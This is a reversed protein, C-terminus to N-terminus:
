KKIQGSHSIVTNKITADKKQLSVQSFISLPLQACVILMQLYKLQKNELTKPILTLAKWSSQDCGSCSVQM